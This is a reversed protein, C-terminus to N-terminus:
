GPFELHKDDGPFGLSSKDIWNQSIEIGEATGIFGVRVRSPHRNGDGLSKPGFRLIGLKPDVNQRGNAFELNPEDFYSCELRPVIVHSAPISVASTSSRKRTTTTRM